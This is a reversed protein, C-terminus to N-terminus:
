RKQFKSQDRCTPFRRGRLHRALARLPATLRWSLSSTINNYSQQWRKAEATASELAENANRLRDQLDTIEKARELALKQTQELASQTRGLQSSLAAIEDARGWALQQTQELAAHATALREQLDAIEDARGWALQQTQELAAHVTALREELGSIELARKTALGQTERDILCYLPALANFTQGIRRWEKNGIVPRLTDNSKAVKLLFQYADVALQPLRPDLSLDAPKYRAHRLDESIFDKAYHSLERKTTDNLVIGLGSAIRNMQHLPDSMVIDYDVVVRPKGETENIAPITHELWLLHSKEASFNNRRALSVAVSLPNRLAIVYEDRLRLNSFVEKWFPLLRCLRPDKFGFTRNGGLKEELLKSARLRLPALQRGTLENPKILRLSHWTCGVAALVNENLATLEVDEWFGKDNDNPIAPMLHDGLGVGLSKLGRTIASTGSRHMGLVVILRGNKTVGM